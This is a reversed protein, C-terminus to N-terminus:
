QLMGVVRLLNLKYPLRAGSSNLDVRDVAPGNPNSCKKDVGNAVKEIYAGRYYRSLTLGLSATLAVAVVVADAHALPKWVAM